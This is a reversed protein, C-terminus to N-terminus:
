KAVEICDPFLQKCITCGWCLKKNIQWKGDLKQIAPCQFGALQDLEPKQKTIQFRPWSKGQKSLNRVTFLRCEGKAVLVSVGKKSYAEQVDKCLQNFNWVNSVKVSDVQCAKAIDEILLAKTTEKANWGSGPNPQHGTMATLRNDLVVVLADAKNFVLNILAPIGAHFFTSDGIFVIPKEGTSKSIGHSIGISAGMSVVFDYMNYPTLAGLMYCGIDGGFIKKTGLMKKIAYFTSRHPCGACFLPSRIPADTKLYKKVPKELIKALAESVHEPRLEGAEPLISKGHVKVSCLKKIEEEIVPDLEEIVIVEKLNKLFASTKNEPFPYSFAIKLLPLKVNLEQMAEKVYTYAAGSTVIGIDGEGKEVSNLASNEAFEKIKSIKELLRKHREVTPCSGLTFDKKKFVGKSKGKIIKGYNVTSKSYCVRTTLRVIVPIKYKEALEFALKTMDKTEQSDSPELTPIKGLRSLWRCDQETQVSSWCAPDDAIAVVLPCELYVLPLLSDLAVNLGYHKFSVISKMGSLAAGAASELAVKENTSYEFYIGTDKATLAFVDGIETAPTGPYSAAYSLGSELAGRVIAENGFLFGRKENLLEM